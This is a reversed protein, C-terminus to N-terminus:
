ESKGGIQRSDSDRENLGDMWGDLERVCDREGHTRGHTRRRRRQKASWPWAAAATLEERAVGVDVRQDVLSGRVANNDQWRKQQWRPPVKGRDISCGVDDDEDEEHLLKMWYLWREHMANSGVVRLWVLKSYLEGEAGVRSGLSAVAVTLM